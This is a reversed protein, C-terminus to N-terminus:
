PWVLSDLYPEKDTKSRQLQAEKGQEPRGAKVAYMQFSPTVASGKNFCTM